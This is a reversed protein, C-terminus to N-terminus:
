TVLLSRFPQACNNTTQNSKYQNKFNLNWNITNYYPFLISQMAPCHLFVFLLDTLYFMVILKTEITLNIWEHKDLFQLRSSQPYHHKMGYFCCQCTESYCSNYLLYLCSLYSQPHFKKQLFSYYNINYSSSAM